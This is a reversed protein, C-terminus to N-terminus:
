ERPLSTAVIYLLLGSVLSSVLLLLHGGNLNLVLSSNIMRRAEDQATSALNPDAYPIDPKLSLLVPNKDLSELRETIIVFTKEQNLIAGPKTDSLIQVLGGDVHLRIDKRPQDVFEALLKIERDLDQMDIDMSIHALQISFLSLLREQMNRYWPGNRGISLAGNIALEADFTIKINKLNIKETKESVHIELGENVLSDFHSQIKDKADQRSLGGVNVIGSHVRPFIRGTYMITYASSSLFLMAGVALVLLRIRTNKNNKACMVKIIDYNIGCRM